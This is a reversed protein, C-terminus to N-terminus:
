VCLWWFDPSKVAADGAGNLITHMAELAEASTLNQRDVVRHLYPLLSM